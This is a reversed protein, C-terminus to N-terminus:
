VVDTVSVEPLAEIPAAFFGGLINKAIWQGNGSAYPGWMTLAQM